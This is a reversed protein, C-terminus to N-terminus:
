RAPAASMSRATSREPQQWAYTVGFRCPRRPDRIRWRRAPRPSRTRPGPGGGRGDVGVVIAGSTRVGACSWSRGTAHTAVQQSVSGLLLSAFGGRGRCGLVVLGVNASANVLTPGPSGQTVEGRISVEPALARAEAVAAAVLEQAACPRRRRASRRDTCPRRHGALRLCSPRGTLTPEDRWRLPVRGDMGVVVPPDAAGPEYGCRRTECRSAPGVVGHPRERSLHPREM